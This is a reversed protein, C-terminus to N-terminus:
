DEGESPPPPPLCRQPPELIYRTNTGTVPALCAQHEIWVGTKNLDPDIGFQGALEPPYPPYNARGKILNTLACTRNMEQLKGITMYYRVTDQGADSADDEFFEIIPVCPVTTREQRDTLEPLPGYPYIVLDDQEGPEGKPFIPLIPQGRVKYPGVGYMPVPPTSDATGWEETEGVRVVFHLHANTTGSKGLKGIIQGGAVSIPYANESPEAGCIPAPDEPEAPPPLVSSDCSNLHAYLTWYNDRHKLIIHNGYGTSGAKTKYVSGAYAALVPDGLDDGSLGNFDLAYRDRYEDKHMLCNYACDVKVELGTKYPMELFLPLPDAPRRLTEHRAELSEFRYEPELGERPRPGLPVIRKTRKGDLELLYFQDTLEFPTGEPNGERAAPIEQVQYAKFGLEGSRSAELTTGEILEFGM